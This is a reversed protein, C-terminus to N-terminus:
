VIEGGIMDKLKNRIRYLKGEVSRETMSLESAIQSISQQYYYRRYFLIQEPQSLARIANALMAQKEKQIVIEEPTLEPSPVERIEESELSISVNDHNKYSRSKNLATNRATATIWATWSGKAPDYSEIKDCVKLVIDDICEETDQENHLFPGVIYRILPHYQRIFLEAANEDKRKIRAILEQEKM